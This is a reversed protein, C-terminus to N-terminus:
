INKTRSLQILHKSTNSQMLYNIFETKDFAYRDFEKGLEESWFFRIKRLRCQCEIVTVHGDYKASFPFIDTLELDANINFHKRINNIPEIKYSNDPTDRFIILSDINDTLSPAIELVKEKIWKTYECLVETLDNLSEHYGRSEDAQEYQDILERSNM